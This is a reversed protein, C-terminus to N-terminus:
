QQSQVLTYYEGINGQLLNKVEITRGDITKVIIELKAKSTVTPKANTTIINLTGQEGVKGSVQQVYGKDTNFAFANYDGETPVLTAYWTAETPTDIRFTCIAAENKLYVNSGVQQPNSTWAMKGTEDVTVQDTYDWEEINVDWDAVNLTLELDSGNEPIKTINFHYVHNRIVNFPSGTENYDKFEIVKDTLYDLTNGDADTLTVPMTLTGNENNFDPVYAVFSNEGLQNFKLGTSPSSVNANFCTETDMKETDSAASYGAPLSNGKANYNSMEAGQLKYSEAMAGDLTIFVKAMARLVYITGLDTTRGPILDLGTTKVGWMPIATFASPSYDFPVFTTFDTQVNVTPCNALVMIKYNDQNLQSGSVKFSGSFTYVNLQSTQIYLMKDVKAFPVGTTANCILVQLSNPEIRNDFKNGVEAGGENWAARPSTSPNSMALTFTVHVESDTASPILTDDSSCAVAFLSLVGIYIIHLLKHKM